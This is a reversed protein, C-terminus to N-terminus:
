SVHKALNSLDNELGRKIMGKMFWNMVAALPNKATATMVLNVKSGGSNPSITFTSDWITGGADAIFSVIGAHSTQPPEYRTIELVTTNERNGM